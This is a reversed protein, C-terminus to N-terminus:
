RRFLRAILAYAFGLGITFCAGGAILAAIRRTAVFDRILITGLYLLGLAILAVGIVRVLYDIKM